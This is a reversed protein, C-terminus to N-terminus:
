AAPSGHRAKQRLQFRKEVKAFIRERLVEQGQKPMADITDFLQQYNSRSTDVPKSRDTAAFVQPDRILWGLVHLATLEDARENLVGFKILWQITAPQLVKLCDTAQINVM